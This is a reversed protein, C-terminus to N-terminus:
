EIAYRMFKRLEIPQNGIVIDSAPVGLMELEEAVDRDTNNEMIWIKGSEKIDFHFIVSYSFYGFRNKDWGFSILVYHRKEEDILVQNEGGTLNVPYNTNAYEKLLNSLFTHYKKIKDM